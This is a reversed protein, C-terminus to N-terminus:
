RDHADAGQAAVEHRTLYDLLAQRPVRVSRGLRIHPLTGNEILRYAQTRSINLLTAVEPARLYVPHGGGMRATIPLPEALLSM